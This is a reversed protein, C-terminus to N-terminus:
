KAEGDSVFLLNSIRAVLDFWGRWTRPLGRVLL